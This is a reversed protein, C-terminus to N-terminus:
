LLRLFTLLAQQEPEPLPTGSTAANTSAHKTQGDVVRVMQLLAPLDRAAGNTLLPTKRAIGRLSSVRAGAPHVLPRVGTDVHADSAWVASGAFVAEEVFVTSAADDAFVRPQHCSACRTQFVAAGVREDDDFKSRGHARANPPSDFSAFFAIMARRLETATHPAGDVSAPLDFWPSQPTNKNAVKFEAHVMLSVTRDLARSFLPPNQFLGFLPKTTATIAHGDDDVRGTNHIRGDVGGQWHCAECTFRSSTGTSSQQPAMATTFVLQEGLRAQADASRRTAASGVHRVSDDLDNAVVFQHDGTIIAAVAGPKDNVTRLVAGSKPDLWAWVGSGRGIVVVTATDTDKVLVRPTVVGHAGVNTSFTRTVVDGDVHVGFVFSDINGFAGGSRDLDADEIGGIFVDVAGAADEEAIATYLLGKFQAARASACRPAGTKDDLNFVVVRHDLASLAVLHHPLRVLSALGAGVDCGGVVVGGKVSVVAGDTSAADVVGDKAALAVVGAVGVDVDADGGAGFWQLHGSVSSGVVFRDGDAVLSSPFPLTPRIADSDLSTTVLRNDGALLAGVVGHAVAVAVPDSGHDARARDAFRKKVIPRLAREFPELEAAVADHDVDVVGADANAAVVAPARKECGGALLGVALCWSTWPAAPPKM